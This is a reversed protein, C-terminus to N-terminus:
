VSLICEDDSVFSGISVILLEIKPCYNFYNNLSVFSPPSLSLPLPLSLSPSLSSVKLLQTNLDRSIAEVLYIFRQAPYNTTSVKRLHDYIALVATKIAELNNAAHLELIPFERMLSNYDNVKEQAEKLGTHVYMWYMNQLLMYLLLILETLQYM